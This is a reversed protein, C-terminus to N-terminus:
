QKPGTTSCDSKLDFDFTTTSSTVDVQLKSQSNYCPPVTVGAAAPAEGGDAENEPSGAASDDSESAPASGLIQVTKKGPLVGSQESNFELTYNGDADTKGSSYTTDDAVFKVLGGALPAGDLTVTGSVSVLDLNGYDVNPVGSECGAMVSLLFLGAWGTRLQM